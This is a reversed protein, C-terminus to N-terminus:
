DGSQARTRYPFAAPSNLWHKTRYSIALINKVEKLTAETSRQAQSREVPADSLLLTIWSGIRRGLHTSELAELLYPPTPYATEELVFSMRLLQGALEGATLSFSDSKVDRNLHLARASAHTSVWLTRIVRELEAEDVSHPTKSLQDFRRLPDHIVTARQIHWRAELAQRQDSAISNLIKDAADDRLITVHAEPANPYEASPGYQQVVAHGNKLEKAIAAPSWTLTNRDIILWYTAVDLMTPGSESSKSMSSPTLLILSMRDSVDAWDPAHAFEKGWALAIDLFVPDVEVNNTPQM